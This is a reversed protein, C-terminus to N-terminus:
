SSSCLTGDCYLRTFPHSTDLKKVYPNSPHLPPQAAACPHPEKYISRDEIHSATNFAKLASSIPLKRRYGKDTKTLGM